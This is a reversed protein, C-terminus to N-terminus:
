EPTSNGEEAAPQAAQPETTVPAEAPAPVAPAAAAEAAWVAAAKPHWPEQAELTMAQEIPIRYRGAEADIVAYAGDNLILADRMETNQLLQGGEKGAVQMREKIGRLANATVVVYLVVVIAVVLVTSLVIGLISPSSKDFEVKDHEHSM